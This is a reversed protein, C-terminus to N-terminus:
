RTEHAFVGESPQRTPRRSSATYRWTSSTRPSVPRIGPHDAAIYGDHLIALAWMLVLGAIAPVLLAWVTEAILAAIAFGLTLVGLTM